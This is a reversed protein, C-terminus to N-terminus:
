EFRVTYKMLQDTDNWSVDIANVAIPFVDYLEYVIVPNQQRDYVWINMQLNSYDDKYGVEYPKYGNTTIMMNGGGKSKFNTIYNLWEDFFKVHSAYKDMLFTLSFDDNFQIGYAMEERPGYGFRHVSEKFLTPAPLTASECRLVLNSNVTGQIYKNLVTSAAQSTDFPSFTVLFSHMPLSDSEAIISRFMNIDFSTSGVGATQPTAYGPEEQTGIQNAQQISAEQEPTLPPISPTAPQTPKQNTARTRAASGSSREANPHKGALRIKESVFTDTFANVIALKNPNLRDQGANTGFAKKYAIEAQAGYQEYGIQRVATSVPTSMIKQLASESRVRNLEKQSIGPM